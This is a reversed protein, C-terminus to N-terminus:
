IFIFEYPDEHKDVTDLNAIADLPAKLHTSGLWLASLVLLVIKSLVSIFYVFIYLFISIAQLLIWLFYIHILKYIIFKCSRSEFTSKTKKEKRKM